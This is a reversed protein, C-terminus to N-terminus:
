LKRLNKEFIHKEIVIKKLNSITGNLYEAFDKSAFPLAACVSVSTSYYNAIPDYVKRPDACYEHEYSYKAVVEDIEKRTEDSFPYYYM